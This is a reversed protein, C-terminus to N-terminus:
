RNVLQNIIKPCIRFSTGYTYSFSTCEVTMTPSHGIYIDIQDFQNITNDLGELDNSINWGTARDNM